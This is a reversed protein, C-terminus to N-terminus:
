DTDDVTLDKLLCSSRKKLDGRGGMVATFVRNVM